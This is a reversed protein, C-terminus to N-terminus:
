KYYKHVNKIRVVCCTLLFVISIFIFNIVPNIYNNIKLIKFNLIIMDIFLNIGFVLTIIKLKFDNEFLFRIFIIIIFILFLLSFFLSQINKYIM